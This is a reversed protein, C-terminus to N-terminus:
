KKLNVAPIKLEEVKTNFAPIQTDLIKKLKALQVDIRAVLDNYATYSSATPKVDASAVSSGVGALKDNLMIPFALVDQVAKAKPQYL